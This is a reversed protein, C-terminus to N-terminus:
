FGYGALKGSREANTDRMSTVKNDVVDSANRSRMLHEGVNIAVVAALILIILVVMLMEVLTFAKKNSTSKNIKHM